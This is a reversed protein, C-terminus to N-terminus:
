FLVDSAPFTKEKVVVGARNFVKITTEHRQGAWKAYSVAPRIEKYWLGYPLLDRCTLDFGDLTERVRIEFTVPSGFPKV